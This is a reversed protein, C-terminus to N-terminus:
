VIINNGNFGPSSEYAMLIDDSVESTWVKGMSAYDELHALPKWGDIGNKSKGLYVRFNSINADM